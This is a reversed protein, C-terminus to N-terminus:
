SPERQDSPGPGADAEGSLERFLWARAFRWDRNVTSPSVQQAEATEQLSLGGFFRLRVVAAVEPEEQELRRIAEEVALIELPDTEAAELDAVGTLQRLPIRRADGGRKARLRARAHEVLVQRMARAAAHFFQARSGYRLNGAPDILRLYVEHVLATAQLTHGPREQALRQRALTKIEEYVRELVAEAAGADGDAARGLLWTLPQAAQPPVATRPPATM